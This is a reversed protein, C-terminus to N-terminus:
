IRIVNQVGLADEHFYSPKWLPSIIETGFSEWTPVPIIGEGNQGLETWELPTKVTVSVCHHSWGPFIFCFPTWLLIKLPLQQLQSLFSCYYPSSWCWFLPLVSSKLEQQQLESDLWACLDGQNLVPATLPTLPAPLQWDKLGVLGLQLPTEKSGACGPASLSALCAPCLDNLPHASSLLLMSQDLFPHSM